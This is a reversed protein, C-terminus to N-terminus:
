RAKSRTITKAGLGGRGISRMVHDEYLKIVEDVKDPMERKNMQVEIAMRRICPELLFDTINLEKADMTTATTPVFAATAGTDIVGFPPTWIVDMTGSDSPPSHVIADTLTTFAILSPTGSATGCGRRSRIEQIDVVDLGEEIESASYNADETVAIDQILEPQFLVIDSFDVTEDDATLAVTDAQRVCRTRNVFDNGITAIADQCDVQAYPGSDNGSTLLRLIRAVLTSCTM